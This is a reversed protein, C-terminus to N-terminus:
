ESDRYTKGTTDDQQSSAGAKNGCLMQLRIGRCANRRYDVLKVYDIIMLFEPRLPIKKIFIGLGRM